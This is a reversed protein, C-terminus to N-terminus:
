PLFDDLTLWSQVIQWEQRQLPDPKVWDRYRPTGCRIAPIRLMALRLQRRGM